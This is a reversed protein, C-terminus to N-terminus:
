KTPGSLTSNIVFSCNNYTHNPGSNQIQITAPNKQYDSCQKLHLAQEFTTKKEASLVASVAQQQETSTHEYVRLAELSRHGTREKIIKEPVGAEFLESAGTARLSHNTKHGEIGAEQCMDKLMTSLFNKGIPVACFWPKHSDSPVTPLPLAYFYDKIRAENPLKSFYQVHCRKGSNPNSFTPVVKNEM